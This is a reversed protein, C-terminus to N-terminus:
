KNKLPEQTEEVEVSTSPQEKSPTSENPNPIHIKCVGYVGASIALTMYLWCFRSRKDFSPTSALSKIEGLIVQLEQFQKQGAPLEDNRDLQKQLRNAIPSFRKIQELKPVHPALLEIPYEEIIKDKKRKGDIVQQINSEERGIRDLVDPIVDSELLTQSAHWKRSTVAVVEGVIEILIISAGMVAAIPEAMDSHRNLLWWVTALVGLLGNTIRFVVM